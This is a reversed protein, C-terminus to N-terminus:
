ELCGLTLLVEDRVRVGCDLREVSPLAFLNRESDSFESPGRENTTVSSGGEEGEEGEEEEEQEKKQWRAIKKERM